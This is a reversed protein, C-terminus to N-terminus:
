PSPPTAAITWAVRGEGPLAKPAHVASADISVAPFLQSAISLASPTVRTKAEVRLVSSM